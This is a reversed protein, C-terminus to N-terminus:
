TKGHKTGKILKGLGYFREQKKKVNGSLGNGDLVRLVAKAIKGSDPAVRFGNVSDEIIERFAGVDSAIVPVGCEIGELAVIGSDEYISPTVLCDAIRYMSGLVKGKLKGPFLVNDATGNKEAQQSLQPIHGNGAFIFITQPVKQLIELVADMLIQPGKKTVLEDAFLVIKVDKPVFLKRFDDLNCNTKLEDPAVEYPVIEIKDKSIGYLKVIEKKTFYNATIIKDAIQCAWKECDAVYIEERTLKNGKRGAETGHIVFILPINYIVKLAKGTLATAWGNAIILDFKQTQVVGIVRELFGINDMVVNSVDNFSRFDLWETVSYISIGDKKYKSDRGLFSMCFVSVEMGLDVLKCCFGGTISKLIM